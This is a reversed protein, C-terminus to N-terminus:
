SWFEWWAKYGAPKEQAASAELRVVGAEARRAISEKGAMEGKREALMEAATRFGKVAEANRGLAELASARSLVAIIWWKGEDQNLEGRRGFYRLSRDAAILSEDHQGLHGIAEALGAHCLGEFGDHDFAEEAPISRSMDMAKRCSEAAAEYAGDHLQREADSLALYAWAVEKLPKM